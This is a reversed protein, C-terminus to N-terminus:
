KVKVMKEFFHVISEVPGFQGKAPPPMVMAVHIRAVGTDLTGMMGVANALFKDPGSLSLSTCPLGFHPYSCLQLTRTLRAPKDVM